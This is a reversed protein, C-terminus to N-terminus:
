EPLGAMRLGELVPGFKGSFRLPGQSAYTSVRVSADLRLMNKVVPRAEETMGGLALASALIRQAPEYNPSDAMAERGVEIAAAFNGQLVM